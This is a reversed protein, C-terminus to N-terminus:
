GKSPFKKNTNYAPVIEVPINQIVLRDGPQVGKVEKVDLGKLKNLANKHAIISTRKSIVHKLDDMSLHDFHNHSILLIDADNKDHNSTTVQYPDIYITKNDGNNNDGVIRFGDHGMWYFKIGNYDLM